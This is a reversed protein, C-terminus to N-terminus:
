FQFLQLFWGSLLKIFYTLIIWRFQFQSLRNSQCDKYLKAMHHNFFFTACENSKIHWSRWDIALVKRPAVYRWVAISVECHFMRSWGIYCIAIWHSIYKKRYAVLFFFNEIECTLSISRSECSIGKRRLYSLGSNCQLIKIMCWFTCCIDCIIISLALHLIHDM